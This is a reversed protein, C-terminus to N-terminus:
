GVLERLGFILNKNTSRSIRIVDKEMLHSLAREVEPVPLDTSKALRDKTRWNYKETSLAFLVKQEIDSFDGLDKMWELGTRFAM